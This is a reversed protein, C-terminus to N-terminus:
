SFFTNKNLLQFKHQFLHEQQVTNKKGQDLKRILTVDKEGDMQLKATEEM